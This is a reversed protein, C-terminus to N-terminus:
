DVKKRGGDLLPLPISEAGTGSILTQYANLLHAISYQWALETEIRRRGLSGMAERRAPEDMLLEIARAFEMEDNPRVYLGAGQASFRHEPLDFAVIPKGLAMYEMVKGMTSRDNFSNSPDPDVCIDATSLYRIYDADSVWGTFWVYNDLGLETTLARLSARADGYGGILVGYFDTRGLDDVLHKLARLLYDVGDQFGMIGAYGIIHKGRSRLQPDQELPRLWNLDPGNRVITIQSPNIGSRQIEMTKYSQNTTIIRDALRCSLKELMVLTWHLFRNGNGGFRAFYMEPALDHHDYVFRKGLLKYPAAILALTDPPNAAHIVDFGEHFLVWLSIFFTATMSYAYEWLYAAVGNAEPPAPFRYVVVGDVTERM